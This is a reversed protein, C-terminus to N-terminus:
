TKVAIEWNLAQGCHHCFLNFGNEGQLCKVDKGTIGYDCVPCYFVNNELVPKLSIQKLVADMLVQDYLTDIEAAKSKLLLEDPIELLMKM